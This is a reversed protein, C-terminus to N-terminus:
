VVDHSQQGISIKTINTVVPKFPKFFGNPLYRFYLSMTIVFGGGILVCSM